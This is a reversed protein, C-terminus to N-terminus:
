SFAQMNESVSRTELSKAIMIYCMKRILVRAHHLLDSRGIQPFREVHPLVLSGM